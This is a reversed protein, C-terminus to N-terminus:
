PRQGKGWQCQVMVGTLHLAEARTFGADVMSMFIEHMAVASMAM